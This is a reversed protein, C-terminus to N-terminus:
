SSYDRKGTGLDGWAFGLGFLYSRLKNCDRTINNEACFQRIQFATKEPDFQGFSQFNTFM